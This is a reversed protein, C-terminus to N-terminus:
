LVGRGARVLRGASGGAPRDARDVGAGPVGADWRDGCVARVGAPYGGGAAGARFGGPVACRWRVAGRPGPAIDRHLVGPAHMGAVARALGAAVGALEGASLPKAAEPLSVEGVDALLVSGPHQPADALQAVGAVGRLRELMVVERRTRRQPDPGLPEKCIVTGGPLFLRTVRTRESRHVVEARVPPVGAQPVGGAGM